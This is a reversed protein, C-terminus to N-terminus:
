QETVIEESKSFKPEAAIVTVHKRESSIDPSDAVIYDQLYIACRGPTEATQHPVAKLPKLNSGCKNCFENEAPNKTGFDSRALDVPKRM